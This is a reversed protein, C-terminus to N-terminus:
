GDVVKFPVILLLQLVGLSLLCGNVNNLFITRAFLYRNDKLYKVILSCLQVALAIDFSLAYHSVNENIEFRNVM